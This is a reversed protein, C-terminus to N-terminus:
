KAIRKANKHSRTRTRTKLTGADQENIQLETAEKGGPESDWSIDLETTKAVDDVLMDNETADSPPTWRQYVERETRSSCSTKPTLQLKCDVCYVAFPLVNLREIPIEQSCNLCIGYKGEDVRALASDIQRLQTEVREILSAHTEVELLSKAVDMEDGPTLLAEQHQGRRLSKVRAQLDDRQRGLVGYLEKSRATQNLM